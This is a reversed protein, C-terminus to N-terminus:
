VQPCGVRVAVGAAKSSGKVRSVVGGSSVNPKFGAKSVGGTPSPCVRSEVTVMVPCVSGPLVTIRASVPATVVASGVPRKSNGPTVNAIPLLLKVAVAVSLAPLEVVALLVKVRMSVASESMTHSASPVDKVSFNSRGIVIGATGDVRVTFIVPRLKSAESVSEM